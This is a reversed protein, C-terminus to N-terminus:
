DQKHAVISSPPSAQLTESFENLFAFANAKPLFILPKSLKLYIVRHAHRGMEMALQMRPQYCDDM